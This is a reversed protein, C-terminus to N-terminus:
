QNTQAYRWRGTFQWSSGTSASEWYTTPCLVQMGGAYAANIVDELDQDDGSLSSPLSAAICEVHDAVAKRQEETIPIHREIWVPSRDCACLLLLLLSYKM